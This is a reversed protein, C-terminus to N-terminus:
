TIRGEIHHITLTEGLARLIDAYDARRADMEAHCAACAYVALFDHPKTATGGWGFERLHCLVVTAPDHNCCDLRLTCQQGQASQRWEPSVFPPVRRLMM